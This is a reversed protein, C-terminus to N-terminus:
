QWVDVIGGMIAFCVAWFTLNIMISKASRIHFLGQSVVVPLVLLLFLGLGHLAGHGFTNHSAFILEGAENVDKHILQMFFYISFAAIFSLVFSGGYVIAPNKPEVEARTKGISSLWANGAIPGYYLAGLANPVIAAIAIAIFNFDPTIM